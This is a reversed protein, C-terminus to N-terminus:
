QLRKGGPGSPKWAGTECQQLWNNILEAITEPPQNMLGWRVTVSIGAEDLDDVFMSNPAEYYNWNMLFAPSPKNVWEFRLRKEKWAGVPLVQEVDEASVLKGVQGAMETEAKM